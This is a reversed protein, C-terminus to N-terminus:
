EPSPHPFGLAIESALPGVARMAPLDSAFGADGSVSTLADEPVDQGHQFRVQVICAPAGADLAGGKWDIVGGGYDWGFGSITFPRGNAAEVAALDAGQKLGGPTAWAPDLADAYVGSIPRSAVPGEFWRVVARRREESAFLISVPIEMGEPGSETADTVNAAGFLAVLDARTMGARFPGACTMDPREVATAAPPSAADPQATTESAAATQPAQAPNCASLATLALILIPLRM